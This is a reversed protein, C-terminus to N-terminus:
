TLLKRVSRHVPSAPDGLCALVSFHCEGPADIQEVPVGAQALLAAYGSQMEHLLGSEKAGTILLTPPLSSHVLAVPNNRRYSELSFRTCAQFETRAFPEIDYFGSVGIAARIPADPLTADITRWNTSAVATALQGAASHGLVSIRARDVGLGSAERHLCAVAARCDGVIEDLSAGPALRYSPCAVHVGAANFAPALFHMLWRDFLFWLGGHIAILLPAPGAVPARFFDIRHRPDAGYAIEVPPHVLARASRERFHREWRAVVDQDIFNAYGAQFDADTHYDRYTLM